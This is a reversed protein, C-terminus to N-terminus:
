EEDDDDDINIPESPGRMAKRWSPVHWLEGDSTGQEENDNDYDYKTSGIEPLDSDADSYTPHGDMDEENPEEVKRKKGSRSAAKKGDDKKNNAGSKAKGKGKPRAKSQSGASEAASNNDNGAEDGEDDLQGVKDKKKRSKRAAKPAALTTLEIRLSSSEVEEQKLRALRNVNSGSIIYATKGLVSRILSHRLLSHAHGSM